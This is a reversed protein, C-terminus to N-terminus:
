IQALNFLEEEISTKMNKRLDVIPMHMEKGNSLYRNNSKRYHFNCMGQFAKNSLDDILFVFPERGCYCETINDVIVTLDPSQEFTDKIKELDHVVTAFVSEIKSEDHNGVFTHESAYHFDCLMRTGHSGDVYVYATALCSPNLFELSEDIDKAKTTIVMLPDFAQCIDKGLRDKIQATSDEVM